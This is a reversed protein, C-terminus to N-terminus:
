IEKQIEGVAWHFWRRAQGTGGSPHIILLILYEKPVPRMLCIGKESVFIAEATSSTLLHNIMMEMELWVIGFHAGILKMEDGSLTTYHAIEEGERDFFIAGFAGETQSVVRKLIQQFIM